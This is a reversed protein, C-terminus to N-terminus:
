DGRHPSTRRIIGTIFLGLVSLICGLSLLLAWSATRPTPGLYFVALSSILTVYCLGRIQRLRPSGQRARTVYRVTGTGNPNMREIYRPVWWSRRFTTFAGKLTSRVLTHEPDVYREEGREVLYEHRGVLIQKYEETVRAPDFPIVTKGTAAVREGHRKLLFDLPAKLVVGIDYYGPTDVGPHQDCTLVIPGGEVRTFLYTKRSRIRFVTGWAIAVLTRSDPTLWASVHVEYRKPKADAFLGLQRLRLAHASRHQESVYDPAVPGAYPNEEIQAALAVGEPKLRAREPDDAPADRIYHIPRVESLSVFFTFLKLGFMLLFFGLILGVVTWTLLYPLLYM